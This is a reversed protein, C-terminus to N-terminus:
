NGTGSFFNESAVYFILLLETVCREQDSEIKTEAGYRALATSTDDESGGDTLLM